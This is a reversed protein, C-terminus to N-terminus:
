AVVPVAGARASGAAVGLSILWIGYLTPGLLSNMGGGPALFGHHAFITASEVLQEVLLVGSVAALWAPFDGARVAFLVAAAQTIIPFTLLPAWYAEVDAISRATAPNLTAPHLSLGLRLLLGVALLSVTTAAGVLFATRAPTSIRNVVLAILAAAPVSAAMTLWAQLTIGDHHERYFAAVARGGATVDPPAPVVAVGAILLGVFALAAWLPTRSPEARMM